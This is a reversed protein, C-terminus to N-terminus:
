IDNKDNKLVRIYRDLQEQSKTETVATLLFGKFRPFYRGLDVGPEIGHSRFSKQVAEVPSPVRYAFENFFPADGMMQVGPIQALHAKLYATRQYNTLALKPLGQKGYWLIGILAALAALAQNTCINSTAKERRIQQERAQLTLVFGRRGKTDVTEGVIRGPLQRILEQSCAMYGVYPGGFQLPLGCPQCDGVAIDAGIEKASAYLGYVLPNACITTLAGKSKAYASASKIDDVVGFFNPYSMLVAATNEDVAEYFKELDLRGDPHFPVREIRTHHSILYQQVVELYHPHLSEAIVVKNREKHHRLSMLMAEACASAGDYLSANSVDLGTLACIVSQFEFIIQLMGQSAEAQYPTYATLFESKSCIAQIIAPVHHEYAGAGLYNEFSPYTNKAALKEMLQQGEYESLGDDVLPAALRLKEPIDRFLEDVSSVGIVRLMEQIQPDKNSIFDM